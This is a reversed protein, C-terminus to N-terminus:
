VCACVPLSVLMLGLANIWELVENEESSNSARTYLSTMM